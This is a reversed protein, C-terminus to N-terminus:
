EGSPPFLPTPDDPEFTVVEENSLTRLHVPLSGRERAGDITEQAERVGYFAPVLVVRGTAEDRVAVVLFVTGATAARFVEVDDFAAKEAEVAERVTEYEDDPVLVDLGFREHDPPLATVDGPHLEIPNWGNERYEEATAEMDDVVEDWFELVSDDTGSSAM